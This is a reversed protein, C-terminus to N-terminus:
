NDIFYGRRALYIYDVFKYNNEFFSNCDILLYDRDTLNLSHIKTLQTSDIGAFIKSKRIKENTNSSYNQSQINMNVIKFNSFRNDNVLRVLVSNNTNGFLHEGKLYVKNNHGIGCIFISKYNRTTLVNSINLYMISDRLQKKTNMEADVCIIKFKHTRSYKDILYKLFQYRYFTYNTMKVNSWSKFYNFIYTSDKTEIYKSILYNLSGSYELFLVVTDTNHTRLFGDIINKQVDISSIDRHFEGISLLDITTNNTLTDINLSQGRSNSLFGILIILIVLLGKYISKM